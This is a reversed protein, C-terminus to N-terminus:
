FEIEIYYLLKLVSNKTFKIQIKIVKESSSNTASSTNCWCFLINKPM